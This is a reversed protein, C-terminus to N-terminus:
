PADGGDILALLDRQLTDICDDVNAHYPCAPDAGYCERHGKCYRMAQVAKHNTDIVAGDRGLQNLLMDQHIIITHADHCLRTICFDDDQINYPCDGCNEKSEPETSCHMLGGLVKATLEDYTAM